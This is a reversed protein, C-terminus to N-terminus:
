NAKRLSLKMNVPKDKNEPMGEVKEAGMKQYFATAATNSEKVGILIGSINKQIGDNIVQRMLQTGVSKGRHEPNVLLHHLNFININEDWKKPAMNNKIKSTTEQGLQANWLDPVYARTIFGLLKGNQIAIYTVKSHSTVSQMIEEINEGDHTAYHEEEDTKILDILQDKYDAALQEGLKQVSLESALVTHMYFCTIITLLTKM